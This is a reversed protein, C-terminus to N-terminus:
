VLVDVMEHDALGRALLGLHYRSDGFTHEIATLRSTYHGVAYEATMGIGGHLQIAEQGVHRGTRGLLAKARSATAGDTANESIAMAAFLATSRALEVSVYMDAARQTLTQFTALPVGFQKRTKLYDTTMTLAAGMCGLAEGALAVIGLSLGALLLEPGGLRIAEAGDLEIVGDKVAPQRVLFVCATECCFATTAVADVESLATTGLKRGTVRWTGEQEVATTEPHEPDWARGPEALATFVLQSGEVIQELLGDPASEADAVMAAAALADAYPAQLRAAGLESSALVVEVASAGMGGADEGFPLGLLGMEALSSWVERDVPQPGVAVDGSTAQPVLRGAMERVASQLARQEDDLTFDM